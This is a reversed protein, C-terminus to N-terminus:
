GRRDFVTCPHMNKNFSEVFAARSKSSVTGPKTAKRLVRKSRLDFPSIQDPKSWLHEFGFFGEQGKRPIKVVTDSSM